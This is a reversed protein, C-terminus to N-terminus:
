TIIVSCLKYIYKCLFISLERASMKTGTKNVTPDLRAWQSVVGGGRGCMVGTEQTFKKKFLKIILLM